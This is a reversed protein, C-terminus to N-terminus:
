IIPDSIPLLSSSPMSGGVLLKSSAWLLDSMEAFLLDMLYLGIM